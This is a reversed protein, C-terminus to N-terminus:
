ISQFALSNMGACDYVILPLFVVFEPVVFCMMVYLASLIVPLRNDFYSNLSTVAVAGLIFVVSTWRVDTFSLALLCLGFLMLKDALKQM